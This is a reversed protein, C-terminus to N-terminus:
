FNSNWCSKLGLPMIEFREVPQYIKRDSLRCPKCNQNAIQYLPLSVIVTLQWINNYFSDHSYKGEVALYDQIQPRVRVYGGAISDFCKTNRTLYYPGAAAYLSFCRCDIAQWGVEANFGYSTIERRTHIAFFDGDFDDFVCKCRFKKAGVPIYGNARFDWCRGLIELGVGIQNYNHLCGERFDYYANFGLIDCFSNRCPIFRGGIGVNFAYEDNDFRHGRLDIFPYIYGPYYNPALFMELTTYDTGFLFGSNDGWGQNHSLLTRKPVPVWPLWEMCLSSFDCPADSSCPESSQVPSHFTQIIESYGTKSMRIKQTMEPFHSDSIQTDQPEDPREQRGCDSLRRKNSM